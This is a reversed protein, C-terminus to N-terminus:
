EFSAPKVGRGGDIPPFAILKVADDPHVAVEDTQPEVPVAERAAEASLVGLDLMQVFLALDDGEMAPVPAPRPVIHHDDGVEKTVRPVSVDDAKRGRPGPLETEVAIPLSVVIVKFVM